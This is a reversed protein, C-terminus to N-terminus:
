ILLESRWNQSHFTVGLQKLRMRPSPTGPATLEGRTVLGSLILAGSEPHTVKFQVVDIEALAAFIRELAANTDDICQETFRRFALDASLDSDWPHVKRARWEIELRNQCRKLELGDPRVEGRTHLALAKRVQRKLRRRATAQLLREIKRLM